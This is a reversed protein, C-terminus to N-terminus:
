RESPRLLNVSGPTEVTLAVLLPYRDLADRETVTLPAARALIGAVQAGLFTGAPGTVVVPMDRVVVASGSEVVVGLRDRWGLGAVDRQGVMIFARPSIVREVVADAVRVRLGAFHGVHMVLNELSVRIAIPESTDIRLDQGAVRVSSTLLCTMMVLTATVRAMSVEM